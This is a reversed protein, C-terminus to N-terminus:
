KEIAVSVGVADIAGKRNKATGVIVWTKGSRFKATPWTDTQEDSRAYGKLCAETTAAKAIQQAKADHESLDNWLCYYRNKLIACFGAGPLSWHTQQEEATTEAGAAKIGANLLTCFPTELESEARALSAAALSVIVVAGLGVLRRAVAVIHPANRLM